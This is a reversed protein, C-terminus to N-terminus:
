VHARGIEGDYGGGDFSIILAERFPSAYLATTAHALHHSRTSRHVEANIVEEVLSQDKADGHHLCLDFRSPLNLCSGLVDMARGLVTPLDSRNSLDLYRERTLRELEFNRLTPSDLVSISSDHLTNVAIVTLEVGGITLRRTVKYVTAPLTRGRM